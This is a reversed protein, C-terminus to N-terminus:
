ESDTTVTEKAEVKTETTLQALLAQAKAFLDRSTKERLAASLDPKSTPAVEGSPEQTSANTQEGLEIASSETSLEQARANMADLMSWIGQATNPPFDSRADVHQPTLQNQLARDAMLEVTTTTAKSTSPKIVEVAANGGAQENIAVFWVPASPIPNVTSNGEQLTKSGDGPTTAVPSPTPTPSPDASSATRVSLTLSREVSAGSPDTVTITLQIDGAESPTGSITHTTADFSMGAPLGEVRWTLKDGNSDSFLTEPLEASYGQGVTAAALSHDGDGVTPAHNAVVAVKAIAVTSSAVGDNLTVSIFRVGLTSSTTSYTIQSLIANAQAKTVAGTFSLTAVGNSQELTAITQGNSQIANGDLTYGNAAVFGFVDEAAGAFRVTAGTYNNAADLEADSLSFTSALKVAEGGSVYSPDAVQPATLVELGNGVVVVGGDASVAIQGAGTLGSQTSILELTATSYYALSGDTLTVFLAKGDTSLAIDQVTKTGAITGVHKLAKTSADFQFSVVQQAHNTVVTNGFWDTTSSSGNGIFITNGDASVAIHKVNSFSVTKGTADTSGSRVFTLLTLSGDSGRQYVIVAAGNTANTAIFVYDGRVVIEQAAWLYPASTMSGNLTSVYTLAGTETNRSVTVLATGTAAYLNKGDESVSIASIGSLAGKDTNYVSVVLAVYALSGDTNVSYQGIANGNSRLAYLSKGDSSLVMQKIGTLGSVAKQTSVYTLKGTSTDRSFVAIAGNTDALYVHSGDSSFTSSSLTGLGAINKFQELYTLDGLSLTPDVAVSPTDNVATIVIASDLATSAVGLQDALVISVAVSSSPADSSNAYTIQRLANQVDATTPITGNADTFRITMVGGSNSVTAITVGNKQLVGNTLTLGNGSTFGLTDSASKGSGLTVTLVAGDYNGQGGNFTDMQADSVTASPVISVPSGQETYSTNTGGGVSPATNSVTAAALTVSTSLAVVANGTSSDDTLETVSVSITRSGSLSKSTNGYTLSDIVKAADSASSNLYLTVITKGNKVDVRYVVGTGTEQTGSTAKDLVIKGSGVGLVDGANAADLTIVVQWVTQGSEVTDIVTNEFLKVREGGVSYTPSQGDATITPADNVDVLTISTEKQSSNGQGDDLQLTFTATSGNKTPDDSTNTFAIRQLVKQAVAKSVSGTFTVTYSSGSQSVTAIDQGNLQIVGNAITLGDGATFSFVDHTSDKGTDTRSVTISAGKYDGAGGNLADLVSDSITGDPLVPVADGGETYTSTASKLNLVLLGETFMFSGSVYLQTGDASLTAGRLATFTKGDASEVTTSLTLTGDDASKYITIAKESIVFVAAGDDSVIVQKAAATLQTSSLASLVGDTGVSFTYLRNSSGDNEAVYLTKGDASVTLASAYYADATVSGKVDALHTLGGDSGVKYASVLTSGGSTGVYLYQGDSSLSMANFQADAGTATFVSKQTWTDGSREFILLSSGSTVYAFNGQTVVDAISGGNSLLDAGLVGLSTLEGSDTAVKFLAVGKSGTVYVTSGDSSVSVQAADALSDASATSISTLLELSGDSNREFVYLTSVSEDKSTESNWETTTRVAFVRNGVSAVDTIGEYPSPWDDSSILSAFDLAGTKSGIEATKDASTSAVKSDLQDQTDTDVQSAIDTATLLAAADLLIRPELALVRQSRLVFPSKKM